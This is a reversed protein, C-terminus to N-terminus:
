FDEVSCFCQEVEELQRHEGFILIYM